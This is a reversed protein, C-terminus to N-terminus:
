GEKKTRKLSGKVYHKIYGVEYADLSGGGQLVLARQNEQLKSMHVSNSFSTLLIKFSNRHSTWHPSIM